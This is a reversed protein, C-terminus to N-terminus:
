GSQPESTPQTSHHQKARLDSRSRKKSAATQKTKNKQKKKKKICGTNYINTPPFAIMELMNQTFGQM